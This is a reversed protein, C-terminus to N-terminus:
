NFLSGPLKSYVLLEERHVSSQRIAKGLAGENEYNFASDLLRYGADIAGAMAKVGKERKLSYTGLGIVPVKLGENLVKESIQQSM